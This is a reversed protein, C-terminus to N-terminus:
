IRGDAKQGHTGPQYKFVNSRCVHRITAYIDGDDFYESDWLSWARQRYKFFFGPPIISPTLVSEEDARWNFFEYYGSSLDLRSKADATSKGVGDANASPM